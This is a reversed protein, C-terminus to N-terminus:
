TGVVKSGSGTKFIAVVAPKPPQAGDPWTSVPANITGGEGPHQIACFLTENNPVFEPGCVEGGLVGSFLQRVMGREPGETPCAFIGDNMRFTNRNIQGDTAIWLNGAKDFAINDPSSIASIDYEAGAFYTNDAPNAPNGCLIFIEWTFTTAGADNGSETIEIIHGHNNVARPNAADIGPQNAAGRNTNNTMVAYVKGNVPNREVDEPRDMKTAGLLDGAQRTFICVDGQNRFGNAITLPGQGFVMPLWAGTGDANFKAAYLTGSDLLNMNAARNSPNYMGTTVFKYLYDFREDDGTYVAVRGDNTLTTTAAEHKTRGLATRKRPTFTPDYPDIEVIWGFKFPENPDQAVDFRPYYKEWLRESAGAPIGYRRHAAKKLDTDPLGNLNGFYQNFNEEATLVTGWPTVGGGCNNLTGRVMTGTPDYSTKLMDSGMAPGTIQMQTEATIRRNFRSAKMHVWGRTGLKRVEVVSLGHAALAIDVQDKTPNKADYGIFMLEENTYEHNVTMLGWDSRSSGYPFPLFSIYDANYGFQLNQAAPTQFQYAFAPARPSLPDGWKLLVKTEYGEAVTLRDNNQLTIPKFGIQGAAVQQAARGSGGKVPAEVVASNGGGLGPILSKGVLTLPIAALTGGLFAGRSIRRNLIDSISETDNTTEPILVKNINKAM